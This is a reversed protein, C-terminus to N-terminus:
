RYKRVQKVTKAPPNGEIEVLDKKTTMNRINMIEITESNVKAKGKLGKLGQVILLNGQNITMFTPKKFWRSKKYECKVVNKSRDPKVILTVLIKHFIWLISKEEIKISVVNGQVQTIRDGNKEMFSKTYYNQMKEKLSM